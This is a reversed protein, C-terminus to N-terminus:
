IALLTRLFGLTSRRNKLADNLGALRPTADDGLTTLALYGIHIESM